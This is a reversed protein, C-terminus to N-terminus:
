LRKVFAAPVPRSLPFRVTGKSTEYRRLAAAHARRISATMPYLSTHTKWAAYYVLVRGDLRLAPIGYSFADVGRPAAERIAHRLRDLARRSALPLKARYRRLKADISGESKM